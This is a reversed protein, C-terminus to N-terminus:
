LSPPTQHLRFCLRHPPPDCVPSMAASHRLLYEGVLDAFGFAPDVLDLSSHPSEVLIRHDGLDGLREAYVGALEEAAFGFAPGSEAAAEVLDLDFRDPLGEFAVLPEAAEQLRCRYLRGGDRVQSSRDVVGPEGELLAVVRDHGSREDLEQSVCGDGLLVRDAAGAGVGRFQHRLDVLDGGCHEALETLGLEGPEGGVARDAGGLAAVVREQGADGGGADGIREPREAAVLGGQVEVHLHGM